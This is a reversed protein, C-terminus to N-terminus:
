VGPPAYDEPWVAPEAGLAVAITGDDNRHIWADDRGLATRLAVTMQSEQMHEIVARQIVASGGEWEVVVANIDSRPVSIRRIGALTV